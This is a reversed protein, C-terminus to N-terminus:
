CRLQSLIDLSFCLGKLQALLEMEGVEGLEVPRGLAPLKAEPDDLLRSFHLRFTSEPVCHAPQARLWEALTAYKKMVILEQYALKGLAELQTATYTARCKPSRQTPGSELLCQRRM